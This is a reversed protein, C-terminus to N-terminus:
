KWVKWKPNKVWLDNLIEYDRYTDMGYWFGEHKYLAVKKKPIVRAFADEIFDGQKLYNFFEKQVVMFGGNVYDFLLPKQAFSTVTGTKDANVLGWRSNPHVGTITIVAKKKRHFELLAKIDIDAVGDGYTVMFTDGKIYKKVKMLREGHPTELGTESFIINFNDNQLEERDYFEVVDTGMTNFAFDSNFYKKRLFYEKIMEGKYGLPLIFDNFGFHSYIKMIHALIPLGGIEVMPKPKFETEERM